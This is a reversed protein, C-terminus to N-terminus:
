QPEGAWRRRREWVGCSKRSGLRVLFLEAEGEITKDTVRSRV